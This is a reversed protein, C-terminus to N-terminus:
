TTYKVIKAPNGAVIAYNPVDKTVVSGAAIIAGKGIRIGKLIVANFNIWAYDEIVIPATVINGKEKWHCKLLETYREAREVSYLEHSNSDIINVNHSILVNDGIKISDASWIRSNDGIYCNKGIEIKGGYNFVSLIGRVHTGEGITILLPNGPMNDVIAESYFVAGNNVVNKNCIKNNQEDHMKFVVEQLNYRSILWILFNKIM